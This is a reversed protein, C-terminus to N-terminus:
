FVPACQVDLDIPCRSSRPHAVDAGCVSLTPRDSPYPPPPTQFSSAPRM